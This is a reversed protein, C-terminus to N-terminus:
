FRMALTIGATPQFGTSTRVCNISPHLSIDFSYQNRLDQEYMNKVKAVRVADVISAIELAMAGIAGAYAILMGATSAGPNEEMEDFSYDEHYHPMSGMAISSGIGAIMYCGITGGLWAFGRGTEGCTMQGLGPMVLSAFGSWGPSYRDYLSETYEKYNYMTKLDKYKLYPLIDSGRNMNHYPGGNQFEEIRGSAYRIAELQNKKITYVPSEPEDFLIYRVDDPNVELIKAKIETGDIKTIMDQASASICTAIVSTLIAITRKMIM